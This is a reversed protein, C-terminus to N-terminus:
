HLVNLEGVVEADYLEVTVKGARILNYTNEIKIDEVLDLETNTVAGSGVSMIFRIIDARLLSKSVPFSNLYTTVSTEIHSRYLEKNKISPDLLIKVKMDVVIKNVPEVVVEIGAARYHILNGVIRERLTDSLNGESDHAYVFVIGVTDTVYVGAVGELDDETPQVEMVGFRIAELTGKSLSRIYHNFRRKRDSNSEENNGGGIAEKNTISRYIPLPNMAIRVSNAPVNGDIGAVTCKVRVDISSSFPSIVVDEVTEYRIFRKSDIPLTTYITGKPIGVPETVNAVDITLVGNAFTAPLKTFGFSHFVSNELAWRFGKHMQFYMSEIEMAVTELLTRIVSGPTFNTLNPSGTRVWNVMNNLIDRLSKM